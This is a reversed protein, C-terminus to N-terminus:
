WLDTRLRTTSFHRLTYRLGPARYSFSDGVLKAVRRGGSSELADGTLGLGAIRQRVGTSSTRIDAECFDPVVGRTVSSDSTPWGGSALGYTRTGTLGEPPAASARVVAARDRDTSPQCM